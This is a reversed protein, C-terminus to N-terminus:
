FLSLQQEGGLHEWPLPPVPVSAAELWHQFSRANDPSRKELPCHVFFYVHIGQQLWGQVIGVWEQFYVDNFQATPHSIYRVLAFPATVTPHLPLQPKRRESHLQPDDPCDYIPRSDLLVRGVGLDELLTQLRHSAPVQFWDPHRVELALAQSRPWAKLFTGLDEWQDPSYGPPLQLFMPGLHDGLDQMQELFALADPLTSRLAGQHSVSRPLKLCFQFGPTVQERWRALTPRDPTVYFTTNGEVTTLRQSYLQLFDASQSGAPYFDGLWGKYAWVACGLFFQM